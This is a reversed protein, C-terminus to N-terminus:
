YYGNNDQRGRLKTQVWAKVQRFVDRLPFQDTAYTEFDAFFKGNLLTEASFAPMQALPRRESDSVALPQKLLCAGSLLGLVLVFSLLVAIHKKRDTM